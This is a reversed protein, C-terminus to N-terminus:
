ESRFLPSKKAGGLSVDGFLVSQYKAALIGENLAAGYSRKAIPVVRGGANRAIKRRSDTSGNDAIIIEGQLGVVAIASPATRVAKEFTEAESLCPIVISVGIIWPSTENNM